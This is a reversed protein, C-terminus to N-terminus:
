NGSSPGATGPQPLARPHAALGGSQGRLPRLHSAGGGSKPRGPDPEEGRPPHRCGESLLRCRSAKKQPRATNQTKAATQRSLRVGAGAGLHVLLHPDGRALHGVHRQLVRGLLALVNRRGAALLRGGFLLAGM